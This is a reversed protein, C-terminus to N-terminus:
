AFGSEIDSYSLFWKLVVKEAGEVAVASDGDGDGDSSYLM